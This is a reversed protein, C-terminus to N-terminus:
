KNVNSSDFIFRRFEPKDGFNLIYGIKIGTAKLYNILQAQHEPKIKAVAKLELIIKDEVIIDARYYGIKKKHFFVDIDKQKQHILGNEQFVISLANEYINELFGRGLENYTDYFCKIIKDSLGEYLM